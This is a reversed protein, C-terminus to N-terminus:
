QPSAIQKRIEAVGRIVSKIGDDPTASLAGRYGEITLDPGILLYAPSAPLALATTFSSADSVLPWGAISVSDGPWSTVGANPDAMLVDLDPDQDAASALAALYNNEEPPAPGGVVGLITWRNRLNEQTLMTGDRQELAFAPISSGIFAYDTVDTEWGQVSTVRAQAIAAQEAPAVVVNETSPPQGCAAVAIFATAFAIRM